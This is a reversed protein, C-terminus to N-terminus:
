YSTSFDRRGRLDHEPNASREAEGEISEEYDAHVIVGCIAM